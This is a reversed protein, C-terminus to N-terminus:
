FPYRLSVPAIGKSFLAFTHSVGRQSVIEFPYQAIHPPIECQAALSVTSVMNPTACNQFKEPSPLHKPKWPKPIELRVLGPFASNARLNRDYTGWVFYLVGGFGLICGSDGELVSIGFFSSFFYLIPHNEYKKTNKRYKPKPPPNPTYKPTYKPTRLRKTNQIPCTHDCSQSHKQPTEMREPNSRFHEVRHLDSPSAPFPLPCFIDHCLTGRM